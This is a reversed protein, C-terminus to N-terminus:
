AASGLMLRAMLTRFAPQAVDKSSLTKSDACDPWAIALDPDSWLIGADHAASYYSTVKYSVIADPTLTCFGHAFGPPIWLQNGEEATLNVAVWRGLTPSGPLIDVAVDFIAGQLCRVLKGQAVPDLQFHLGRVTGVTRSLSQNDQVFTVDAVTQRFWDDRFTESFHGRADVHRQPVIEVVDSLELSRSLM